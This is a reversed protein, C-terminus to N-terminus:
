CPCTDVTMSTSFVIRWPQSIDRRLCSDSLIGAFFEPSPVDDQTDLVPALLIQLSSSSDIPLTQCYRESSPGRQKWSDGLFAPMSARCAHSPQEDWGHPVISKPFASTTLFPCDQLAGHLDLNANIIQDPYLYALAKGKVFPSKRTSYSM